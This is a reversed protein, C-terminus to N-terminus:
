TYATLKRDIHIWTFFLWIYKERYVYTGDWGFATVEVELYPCIQFINEIIITANEYSPNFRGEGNWIAVDYELTDSITLDDMELYENVPRVNVFVTDWDSWNTNVYNEAVEICLNKRFLYPMALLIIIVMVLVYLKKRKM